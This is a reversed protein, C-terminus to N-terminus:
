PEATKTGFTSGTTNWNAFLPEEDPSIPRAIASGQAIASRISRGMAFERRSLSQLAHPLFERAYVAALPEIFGEARAPIVTAPSFDLLTGLYAATMAPMDVALVVIRGSPSEELCSAIAGLPGCDGHKDRVIRVGCPAYDQDSRCSLIMEKPMLRRLTALQHELLTRGGTELLAKDRGMRRSRGGALLVASFGGSGSVRDAALGAASVANGTTM